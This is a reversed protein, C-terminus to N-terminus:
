CRSWKRDIYCRENETNWALMELSFLVDAYYIEDNWSLEKKRPTFIEAVLNEPLNEMLSLFVQPSAEALIELYQRNSLFRTLNWNDLMEKLTEEVWRCNKDCNKDSGLSLLILNQFTGKKIVSSYKQNYNWFKFNKCELKEIADPDDDEILNLCVKKYKKLISDALFTKVYEIVEYPSRVRWINGIHILPSNEELLHIQLKTEYQEYNEGSLFELIERDGKLNSNWKGVLFAPLLERLVDPNAWKPKEIIVGLIRRLVNVDRTTDKSIRRAEFENIGANVLASVFGEKEIMPLAVCDKLQDAPTSAVIVSHGRRVTYQLDETLTTLIILNDYHNVLDDFTCKDTVVIMRSNLLHLKDSTLISAIAFAICENQSLAKLVLLSPKLCAEIIRQSIKERGPLIIQYPLNVKEGQAWKEWYEEPLIYGGAPLIRLKEALWMGVSPRQEIWRELEIATYVVIKKWETQHNNVWEEAGTWIRPTVFVFTSSEKGYGLPDKDRKAFDSDIKSKVDETTGCEWLSNGEPVFDGGMGCSVVGDWGPLCIADGSPFSLHDADAVSAEILKKVLEPLLQQCDKTAAWTKLHTSTIFKM